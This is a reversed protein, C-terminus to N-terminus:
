QSRAVCNWVPVGIIDIRGNEVIVVTGPNLEAVQDAACQQGAEVIGVIDPAALAPTPAAFRLMLVVIALLLKGLLDGIRWLARQLCSHRYTTM